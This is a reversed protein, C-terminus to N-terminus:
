VGHGMAYRAIRAEDADENTLRAVIRGRFMVLIRDCLRQLEPTESSSLLIALGREKAAELLRYIEAKAGVDVGRTPEDLILVRPGTGFWKALVVKQQNGGSLQSVPRATSGAVIRFDRVAADVEAQESARRPRSLRFAHSTRAISINELVSMDLVLGLEKRDAPVFGIRADMAQRPNRPSVPSGDIEVRGTAEPELGFLAGLLDSRGAGVLGALGVVEGPGVDFSADEVRGPVGLGRVRLVADEVEHRHHETTLEELERGVMLHVLRAEDFEDIPGEGVVEGDRLITVRDVLEFVENLRHSVFVTAVGSGKLRRVAAFLSEVEDDALSSTPEDLILVRADTSLARAIEVLQQLDPRLRGVPVDLGLDCNLRELIERAQQRTARWDIGRWSRPKRPGLFINEAVSLDPVVAREQSVTAIGAAVAESPDAFRTEEGDLLVAGTDADLQGSIVKLLTSKGSGNEGVLGHVEGRRLALRAGRLAQVGGFHKRIGKAQLVAPVHEEPGSM